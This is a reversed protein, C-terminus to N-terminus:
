IRHKEFAVNQPLENFDSELKGPPSLGQCTLPSPDTKLCTRNWPLECPDLGGAGVVRSKHEPSTVAATEKADGM